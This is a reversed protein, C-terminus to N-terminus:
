YSTKSYTHIHYHVTWELWEYTFFKSVVIQQPDQTSSSDREITFVETVSSDDCEVLDSDGGGSSSYSYGIDLFAGALTVTEAALSTESDVEANLSDLVYIYVQFEQTFSDFYRNIQVPLSIAVSFSTASSNINVTYNLDDLTNDDDINYIAGGVSPSITSDGNVTIDTFAQLHFINCIRLHLVAVSANLM